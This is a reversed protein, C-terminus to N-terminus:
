SPPIALPMWFSWWCWPLTPTPPRGRGNRSLFIAPFVVWASPQRHDKILVQCLGCREHPRSRQAQGPFGLFSADNPMRSSIYDYFLLWRDGTRPCVPDLCGVQNPTAMEGEGFRGRRSALFAGANKALFLSKNEAAFPKWNAPRRQRHLCPQKGRFYYVYNFLENATLM